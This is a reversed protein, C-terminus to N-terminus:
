KVVYKVACLVVYVYRILHTQQARACALDRQRERHEERQGETDRPTKRETGRDRRKALPPPSPDLVM